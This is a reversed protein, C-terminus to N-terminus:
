VSSTYPSIWTDPGVSIIEKMHMYSEPALWAKKITWKSIGPKGYSITFTTSPRGECGRLEEHKGPLFYGIAELYSAKKGQNWFSATPFPKNVSLIYLLFCKMECLFVPIAQWAGRWPTERGAGRVGSILNVDRIDGANAHLYKVVLM